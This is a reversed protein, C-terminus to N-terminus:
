LDSAVDCFGEMVDVVSLVDIDSLRFKPGRIDLRTNM